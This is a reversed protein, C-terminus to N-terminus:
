EENYIKRVRKETLDIQKRFFALRIVDHRCDNYFKQERFRGEEVFGAHLMTKLSYHNYSYVECYIKYLSYKKFLYLSFLIFAIAGYGSQCHERDLFTTIFVYGDTTNLNYSFITGLPQNDRRRIIMFQQNRDKEFDGQLEKLFAEKSIQNYRNSCYTQFDLSNRWLLLQDIDANTIPRLYLYKSDLQM